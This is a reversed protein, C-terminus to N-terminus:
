IFTSICSRQLEFLLSDTQLAPFGREIGPNPLDEPWPCTLGSWYEMSLPAQHVVTWPIETLCLQALLVVVVLSAPFPEM